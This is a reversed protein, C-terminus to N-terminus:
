HYGISLRRVVGAAHDFGGLIENFEALGLLRQVVHLGMKRCRQLLPFPQGLEATGHKVVRRLQSLPHHWTHATGNLPPPPYKGDIPKKWDVVTGEANWGHCVACNARFLQQGSRLVAPDTVRRSEALAPAAAMGGVLLLLLLRALAARAREVTVFEVVGDVERPEGPRFLDVRM